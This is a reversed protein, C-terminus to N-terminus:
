PTASWRAKIKDPWILHRWCRCIQRAFSGQVHMNSSVSWVVERGESEVEVGRFEREVLEVRDDLAIMAHSVDAPCTRPGFLGKLFTLLCSASSHALSSSSATLSQNVSVRHGVVRRSRLRSIQARSRSFRRAPFGIRSSYISGCEVLSHPPQQCRGWVLRCPTRPTFSSRGFTWNTCVSIEGVSIM